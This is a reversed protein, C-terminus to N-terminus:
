SFEAARITENSTYLGPFITVGFKKIPVWDEKKSTKVELILSFNGCIKTDWRIVKLMEFIVHLQTEDDSHLLLPYWDRRVAKSLWKKRDFKIENFNPYDVVWIPSFFYCEQKSMPQDKTVVIRMDLIEGSRKGLNYFSIGLDFSPIWWMKGKTDHIEPSITYISLRPPTNFVKLKFPSPFLCQM